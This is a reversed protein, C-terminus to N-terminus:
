ATRTNKRWHHEAIKVSQEDTPLVLFERKPSNPVTGKQHAAMYGPPVGVAVEDSAVEHSIQKIGIGSDLLTIGTSRKQKTRETLRNTNKRKRQKNAGKRRQMLTEDTTKPEVKNESIKQTSLHVAQTGIDELIDQIVSEATIDDIFRQFGSNSGLGTVEVSM